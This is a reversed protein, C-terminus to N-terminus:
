EWIKIGKAQQLKYHALTCKYESELLVLQAKSYAVETDLLDLNTILQNEYRKRAQEVATEAQVILIKSNEYQSIANELATKAISLKTDIETKVEEIHWNNNARKIAAIEKEHKVKFGQFIPLTVKAFVANNFRFEDLDPMYGNQYGTTGGITVIPLNGKNALKESQGLISDIYKTIALANQQGEEFSTSKVMLNEIQIEGTIKLVVNTDIGMLGKLHQKLKHLSNELHTKRNKAATIQVNTNIRDFRTALGNAIFGDTRLLNRNLSAILKDQVTIANKTFLISHYLETAAYTLKKQAAILGEDAILKEIKAINIITNARGFDYLTYQIGAHVDWNDNPFLPLTVPTKGLPLSVESIPDVYAFSGELFIKPYKHQKALDIKSTYLDQKGKAQKLTPNNEIIQQLVDQLNYTKTANQALVGLCGSFLFVILSFLHCRKM